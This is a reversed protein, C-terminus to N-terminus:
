AWHGYQIEDWNGEVEKSYETVSGSFFDTLITGVADDMYPLPNVTTQWNKKMGLESLANDAMYEVYRKLDSNSVHEPDFYDILAHEYSVIERFAQYIDYKLSDDWIDQNEEIYARFLHANGKLHMYEDKISWEVITCLGPYKGQFQYALLVAFQAFLQVGELGGAYVAIMRAVARRFERDVQSDTLGAQKYDEYKRVKAKEMYDMKSSMVPIDLFETYVSSPLGITDTFNAYNFVHTGERANFGGLMLRIETPKVIRLLTDYGTGALVDQQTFLRMTDLITKKEKDSANAYDKIDQTLTYENKHWVMTDHAEFYEIAWPYKFGSAQKYVPMGQQKLISSM